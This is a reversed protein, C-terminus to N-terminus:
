EFSKMMNSINAEGNTSTVIIDVFYKDLKYIYYKQALKVGNSSTSVTLTDYQRSGITEKSTEGIEYNISDLNELQTKLSNIYYDTSAEMLPKESMIVINNGTNPDNAVVYYVSTLEAIEGLNKQDDNLLEKGVNMLKAIEEDSSYKWGSPLNYKIGLFDNTYVNNEWEGMSFEKSESKEEVDEKSEIRNRRTEKVDDEDEKKGCGTFTVLMCASILIILFIKLTKKM